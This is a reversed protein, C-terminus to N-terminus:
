PLEKKIHRKVARAHACSQSMAVLPTSCAVCRCAGDDPSHWVQVEQWPKADPVTAVAYVETVGCGGIRHGTDRIYYRPSM